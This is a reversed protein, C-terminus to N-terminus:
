VHNTKTPFRCSVTQNMMKVCTGHLTCFAHRIHNFMLHSQFKRGNESQSIKRNYTPIITQLSLHIAKQKSSTKFMLNGERFGVYGRFIPWGFLFSTNWGDMKVLCTLKLSPLNLEAPFSPLPSSCNGVVQSSWRVYRLNPDGGNILLSTRGNPVWSTRCQFASQFPKSLNSSCDSTFSYFGALFGQGKPM